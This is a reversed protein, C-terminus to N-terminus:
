PRTSTSATVVTCAPAAFWHHPDTHVRPLCAPKPTLCCATPRLRLPSVVTPVVPHITQEPPSATAASQRQRRPPSGVSLQPLQKVAEGPPPRHVHFSHSREPPSSKDGGRGRDRVRHALLTRPSASGVHLSAATTATTTAAAATSSAPTTIPSSNGATGHMRLPHVYGTRHSKNSRRPHHGSASGSASVQLTATDQAQHIGHSTPLTTVAAAAAAVRTSGHGALM